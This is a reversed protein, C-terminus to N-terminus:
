TQQRNHGKRLDWLWGGFLILVSIGLILSVMLWFPMQGLIHYYRSIYWQTFFGLSIGEIVLL